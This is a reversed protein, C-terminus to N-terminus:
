RVVRSAVAVWGHQEQMPPASIAGKEGRLEIVEGRRVSDPPAVPRIHPAACLGAEHEGTRTSRQTQVDGM